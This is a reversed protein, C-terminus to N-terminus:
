PIRDGPFRKSPHRQYTYEKHKSQSSLAPLPISSCSTAEQPRQTQGVTPYTRQQLGRHGTQQPCPARITPNNDATKRMHAASVQQRPESGLSRCLSIKDGQLLNRSWFSLTYRLDLAELDTSPTTPMGKSKHFLEQAESNQNHCKLLWRIAQTTM